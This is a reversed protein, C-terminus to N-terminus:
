IPSFHKMRKKQFNTDHIMHTSSSDLCTLLTKNIITSSVLRYSFIPGLFWSFLSPSFVFLANMETIHIVSSYSTIPYFLSSQKPHHFFSWFSWNFFFLVQFKSSPWFSVSISLPLPPLSILILVNKTQQIKPKRPFFFLANTKYFSSM